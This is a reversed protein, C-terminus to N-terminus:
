RRRWARPSVGFEARFARNFNSVDGFGCDLAIELVKSRESSLRLAARRLRMRLVYQHPTVGAVREFTRLFHYPSLRAERALDELATGTFPDAEIRRLARTVRAEASPPAAETWSSRMGALEFARGAIRLALEEWPPDPACAETVLPAIERLPPLNPVPFRPAEFCEPDYQFSLCHDGRAHEHGCQFPQGPSGLLLSGPTLLAHGTVSRYQFSGATVV